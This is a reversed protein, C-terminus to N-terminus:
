LQAHQAHPIAKWNSEPLTKDRKLFQGGHLYTAGFANGSCVLNGVLVACAEKGNRLISGVRSAKGTGRLIPRVQLLAVSAM